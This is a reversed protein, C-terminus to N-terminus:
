VAELVVWSDVKSASSKAYASLTLHHYAWAKDAEYFAKFNCVNDGVKQKKSTNVAVKGLLWSGASLPWKYLIYKGVLQSEDTPMHQLELSLWEPPSPALAFGAPLLQELDSFKPAPLATVTAVPVAIDAPGALQLLPQAAAPAAPSFDPPQDVLHQLHGDHLSELYEICSSKNTAVKGMGSKQEAKFVYAVLTKLDAANLEEFDCGEEDMFILLERARCRLENFTDAKKAQKSQELELREKIRELAPGVVEPANFAKPGVAAWHAGACGGAAKVANWQRELESPGAINAGPPVVVTTALPREVVKLADANFGLAAVAILSEAHSAHVATVQTARAGDTSDDRVREHLLAKRVNIPNLGLRAVSAVIKAPTFSKSFPRKEVPDDHTGNIVRGLDCFDLKMKVSPDLKNALLREGLIEDIRDNCGGKYTGFLDDCVQNGATGNPLGPFLCLGAEWMQARWKLSCDTYRDPGADLQMFVPGSTVEGDDNYSWTKAMTPYAPAIQLEVFEQLGGGSMGGKENMIFSPEFVKAPSGLPLGFTGKVRPIGFSWDPRMRISAPDADAAAAGKKAAQADTALIMHPAGVEGAYSLWVLITAHKQYAVKRKGARGLELNIYVKSCPGATAGENSLKQHSEDGNLMRAATREDIIIVEFIDDPIAPIFGWEFLTRIYGRFWETLNTSTLWKWRRDDIVQSTVTALQMELRVRRLLAARQTTKALAVEYVTGTSSAVIAAALQRPKQENGDLQCMQAHDAVARVFAVPIAAKPGPADPAEGARGENVRNRLIKGSLKRACDDPLLANFRAAVGDASNEGKGNRGSLILEQWANTADAYVQNFAQRMAEQARAEKQVQDPRLRFAPQKKKATSTDEQPSVEVAVVVDLCLAPLPPPSPTAVAPAAVALQRARM